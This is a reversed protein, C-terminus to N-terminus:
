APPEGSAGGLGETTFAGEGDVAINNTKSGESAGLLASRTEGVTPIFNYSLCIRSVDGDFSSPAVEHELWAPFFLAEGEVPSFERRRQNFVTPTSVGLRIGDGARSPDFFVLDGSGPPASVYYVGSLVANPHAHRYTGAGDDNVLAWLDSLELSTSVGWAALVSAAMSCLADAFERFEPRHHLFGRTQFTGFVTDSRSREIDGEVEARVGSIATSLQANLRDHDDVAFRWMASPFLLETNVERAVVM